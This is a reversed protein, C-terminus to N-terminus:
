PLEIALGAVQLEGRSSQYTIRDGSKRGVLALALPSDATLTTDEAGAPTQEIYNVVRMRVDEGDDPFRLMVLTGNPLQGEVDANGGALIWSVRGMQEEIRALDEGRQLADAADGRDGVSEPDDAREARMQDRRRRLEALETELRAHEQEALGATEDDPTM